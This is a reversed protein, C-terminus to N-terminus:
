RPIRPETAIVTGGYGESALATAIAAFVDPTCRQSDVYAQKRAFSVETHEVPSVTDIARTM